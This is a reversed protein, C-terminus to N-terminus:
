IFMEKGGSKRGISPHFEDWETAPVFEEGKETVPVDDDGGRWTGLGVEEFAMRQLQLTSDLQWRIRHYLGRKFHLQLFGIATELLLSVCIVVGGLVFILAIALVSFNTFNEQQIIQNTCYEQLSPDNDSQGYTLLSDNGPPGSATSIVSQQLNTMSIAFWNQAELIWQNDALPVSVVGLALSNALLPSQLSTVIQSWESQIAANYIIRSITQQYDNDLVSTLATDGVAFQDVSQLPTCQNTRNSSPSPNCFQHQETCALVNVTKDLKFFSIIATGSGDPLEVTEDTQAHAPLWLDDSANLYAGDYGAFVLSVTRNPSYLPQIPEFGVQPQVPYATTASNLNSTLPHAEFPIHTSTSFQTVVQLKLIM